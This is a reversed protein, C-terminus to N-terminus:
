GQRFKEKVIEIIDLGRKSKSVLRVDRYLTAASHHLELEIDIFKALSLYNQWWEILHLSSNDLYELELDAISAADLRYLDYHNVEMDGINYIEHLTFTPSHVTGAFGLAKILSRVLTSKGVGLEGSLGIVGGGRSAGALVLGLREVEGLDLNGLAFVNNVQM